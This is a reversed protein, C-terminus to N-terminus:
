LRSSRAARQVDPRVASARRLIRRRRARPETRLVAQNRVRRPRYKAKRVQEAYPEWDWPELAFGGHQSDIRQQLDAAEARARATAAPVLRGMFRGVAEPTKAMQDQLKWAAYNAYGLLTAQQARIQAQRSIGARTDNADGREARTWSADFLRHRTDRSTLSALDPQQTTNQLPLVWKGELGRATAAQAAAEIRSPSLGALASVDDVVLASEKAAGLLRNTFKASLTADEENLKQLTAKDAPSLRAGALVFQQHYYEILRVAEASLNLSARKGYVAEVRAFLKDNLFTESQLAALKPAEEEQIKQLTDNTDAGALGNFIAYVRSLLQGSRELEAITNEFTPPAPNDAIKRVEARQELIGAEIAPQFDADRIKDFEPAHFPLASRSLLPNQRAAGAQPPAAAVAAAATLAATLVVAFWRSASKM